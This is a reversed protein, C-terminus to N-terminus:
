RSWTPMRMIVTQALAVTAISMIDYEFIMRATQRRSQWCLMGTTEDEVAAAPSNSRELGIQFLKGQLNKEAAERRSIEPRQYTEQM